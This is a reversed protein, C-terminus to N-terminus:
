QRNNYIHCGCVTMFPNVNEDIKWFKKGSIMQKTFSIDHCGNFWENPSKDIQCTHM